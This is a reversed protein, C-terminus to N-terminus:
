SRLKDRVEVSDKCESFPKGCLTSRIAFFYFLKKRMYNLRKPKNPNKKHYFMVQHQHVAFNSIIAKEISYNEFYGLCNWENQIEVEIDWKLVHKINQESLNFFGYNKLMALKSYSIKLKIFNWVNQEDWVSNKKFLLVYKLIKM